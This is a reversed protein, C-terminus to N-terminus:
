SSHRRPGSRESAARATGDPIPMPTSALPFRPGQVARASAGIDDLNDGGAGIISRVAYRERPVRAALIAPRGTVTGQGPGM